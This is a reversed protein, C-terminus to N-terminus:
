DEFEPPVATLIDVFDESLSVRQITAVGRSVGELSHDRCRRDTAKQSRPFCRDEAEGNARGSSLVETRELRESGSLAWVQGRDGM